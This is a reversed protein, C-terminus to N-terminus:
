SATLFSKLLTFLPQQMHLLGKKSQIIRQHPVCVTQKFIYNLAMVIFQVAFKSIRDNWHLINVLLTMCAMEILLTSIGRVSFKLMERLKDASKSEFVFKRNTISAFSVACIWSLTNAAMLQFPDQPNLFVATFFYYSALSVVTTLGGVIM